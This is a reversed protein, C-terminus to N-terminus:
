FFDAGLGRSSVHCLPTSERSGGAEAIATKSQNYHAQCTLATPCGSRGTGRGPCHRSSLRCGDSTNFEM